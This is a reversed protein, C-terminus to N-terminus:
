VWRWHGSPLSGRHLVGSCGRWLGSSRSCPANALADAFGSTGPAVIPQNLVFPRGESYEDTWNTRSVPGGFDEFRGVGFGFDVLPYTSQLDDVLDAFGTAVTPGLEEFSGTDDLLLFVDVMNFISSQSPLTLSVTQTIAGGDIALRLYTPTVGGSSTTTPEPINFRFQPESVVIPAHNGEEPNVHLSYTQVATASGDTVQLEITLTQDVLDALPNWTIKGDTISMGTPPTFGSAWDFTLTDGDADFATAQYEYVTNIYAEVIPSSTFVPPRNPVGQTVELDFQQDTYAGFGDLARVIVSHMGLDASAPTWTIQGDALAMGDPGSVLEYSVADGDPDEAVATYAFTSGAVVEAVPDSVFEPAHNANALVVLDYGFQSYGEAPDDPNWIALVFEETADGQQFQGGSGSAAILETVDYYRLGDPTTGDADKLAVFPQDINDLAVLVPGRVTGTDTNRTLTLHVYLTDTAENFSTRGYSVDFLSSVDSLLSHDVTGRNSLRAPTTGESASATPPMDVLRVANGFTASGSTDSDNNVLRAILHLPTGAAIHQIDVTVTKATADYSVGDARRPSSTADDESWNIFADRGADITPIVPNGDGDVLALEFADNMSAGDTTDPLISDIDIELGGKGAETTVDFTYEQTFEEGEVLTIDGDDVTIEVTVSDAAVGGVYRTITVDYTGGTENQSDQSYAHSLPNAELSAPDLPVTGETDYPDGWNITWGSAADPVEYLRVDRFISEGSPGTPGEPSGAEWGSSGDAPTSDAILTLNTMLGLNNSFSGAPIIYHRWEGPTDYDYYDDYWNSVNYDGYLQWTQIPLTSPSGNDLGIGHAHGQDSSMFDFELVTNATVTYDVEIRKWAERALRLIQSGTEPDVIECISWPNDQPIADQTSLITENSFNIAGWGVPLFQVDELTVPDGEVIHITDFTASVGTVTVNHMVTTGLGEDDTVVITASWIGAKDPTFMLTEDETGSVLGSLDVDIGNWKLSTWTYTLPLDADVDTAQATLQVPTGETVERPGVIKTAPAVNRVTMEIPPAWVTGNPFEATIEITYTTGQGSDDDYIHTAAQAPDLEDDHDGDGWVVSYNNPDQREYLRIDKFWSHGLGSDPATDDNLDEDYDDDCVFTMRDMVGTYKEGVPVRLLMYNGEMGEEYAWEAEKYFNDSAYDDGYVQFLRRGTLHSADNDLGIAHIEGKEECKFRFELVTNATVTYKLVGNDWNLQDNTPENAAFLDTLAISKWSNGSIELETGDHVVGISDLGNQGDQIGAYTNVTAGNLTAIDAGIPRTHVSLSFEKGEDVTMGVPFDGEVEVDPDIIVLVHTDDDSSAPNDHEWVDLTVVYSGASDPAFTLSEGTGTLLYNPDGNKTVTWACDLADGGPDTSANQLTITTGEYIEAPVGTADISAVPPLNNVTLEATDSTVTGYGTITAEVSIDYHGQGSDQGYPHTASMVDGGYSTSSTDGWNVTWGTVELEEYVRINRFMSTANGISGDGDDEAFFTMYDKTGTFYDGIRIRYSQWGASTGAYVDIDDEVTARILSSASQTGFLQIASEGTNVVNNVDFGIGHIQGENTSKFEFELITDATVTYQFDIKKWADGDLYVYEGDDTRVEGTSGARDQHYASFAPSPSLDLESLSEPVAAFDIQITDGENAQTPADLLITPSGSLMLRPELQELHSPVMAPTPRDWRGWQRMWAMLREHSLVSRYWKCILKWARTGYTM